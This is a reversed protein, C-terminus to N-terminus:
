TSLNFTIPRDPRAAAIKGNRDGRLSERGPRASCQSQYRARRSNKDAYEGVLNRISRYSEIEQRDVTLLAGFQGWACRYLWKPGELVVQMGSTWDVKSNIM